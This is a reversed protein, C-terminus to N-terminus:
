FDPPKGLGGTHEACSCGKVSFWGAGASAPKNGAGAKHDCHMSSTHVLKAQCRDAPQSVWIDHSFFLANGDILCFCVVAGEPLSPQRKARQDCYGNANVQRTDPLIGIWGFLAGAAITFWLAGPLSISVALSYFLAFVLGTRLPYAEVLARLEAFRTSL